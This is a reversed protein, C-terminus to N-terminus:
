QRGLVQARQHDPMLFFQFVPLAALLALSSRDTTFSFILVAVPGLGIFLRAVIVEWGRLHRQRNKKMFPPLGAADKWWPKPVDRRYTM